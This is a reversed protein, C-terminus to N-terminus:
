PVPLTELFGTILGAVAEPTEYHALHGAGPLVVLRADDLRAALAHQSPPPAIDDREGAVLLTPVSIGGAYEVVDHSVSADFAELLVRRDAFRGFHRDHERHIWRRLARDRTTVMAASAVRTLVRNRLLATGIREPLAGALRHYAVTAATSWRRPGALASGAIPNVLVLARVPLGGAVAAAAVVSGFSHGLLVAGPGTAAVLERVWGAYGSVDHDGDALPASEGFGPLDPVVVRVGPLREVIGALGEHTGRLGHVAVVVDRAAEDGHVWYVTRSGAVVLEVRRAPGPGPGPGLPRRWRISM